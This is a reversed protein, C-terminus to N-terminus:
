SKESLGMSQLVLRNLAADLAKRRGAYESVDALNNLERPDEALDYLEAQDDYRLWRIYKLNGQIIARYDLKATWVFPNEHSYYELLVQQRPTTASGDFVRKQSVGQVHEPVQVGALDLVTPALDISSYLQDVRSGAEIMRPYRVLLPSRVAPEYPLRREVTLGHENFFYGNDSTLVVVTEDLVGQRELTEVIRGLGEDVALMMEARARITEASVTTPMLRALPHTQLLQNRVSLAEAIVPKGRLEGTSNQRRYHDGLSARAYRDRHREAPVFRSGYELDVSGDDLQRSDPHIAKHAVYVFFPQGASQEIFRVARDTFIDTIYGKVEHLGEGEWLVPDISRGQGAFSVWYDYGPRPSADNGMHWKGVHATRYGAQQLHAPFLQLRHSAHSRATNDFIGHRAVYQGTLLSARNPSCLPTVHYARSFSAGESALRDINPTQLFPHGGAGYEDIRMDDVVVVVFNPRKNDQGDAVAGPLSLLLGLLVLVLVAVSKM